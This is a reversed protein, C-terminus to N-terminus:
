RVHDEFGNWIKTFSVPLIDTLIESSGYFLDGSYGNRVLMDIPIMVSCYQGKEPFLSRDCFSRKLEGLFRDLFDIQGSVGSFM